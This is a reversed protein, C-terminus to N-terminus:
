PLDELAVFEDPVEDVVRGLRELVRVRIRGDCVQVFQDGPERQRRIRGLGFGHRVGECAAGDHDLPRGSRALRLGDGVHDHPAHGVTLLDHEDGLLLGCEVDHRAAEPFRADPVEDEVEVVTSLTRRLHPRRDKTGEVHLRIGIAFTRACLLHHQGGRPLFQCAVPVVKM